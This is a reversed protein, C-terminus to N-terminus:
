LAPEEATEIVEFDKQVVYKYYTMGISILVLIMFAIFFLKDKRNM